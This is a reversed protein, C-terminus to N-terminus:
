RVSIQGADPNHDAIGVGSDKAQEERREFPKYMKRGHQRVIDFEANIREKENGPIWDSWHEGENPLRNRKAIEKPSRTGEAFGKFLNLLEELLERYEKLVLTRKVTGKYHMAVRVRQLEDMLPQSFTRWANRYYLAQANQSKVKTRYARLDDLTQQREKVPVGLKILLNRVQALTKGDYKSLHM